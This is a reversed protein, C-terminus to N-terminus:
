CRRPGHSRGHCPSQSNAVIMSQAINAPMIWTDLVYQGNSERLWEKSGNQKDEIYSGEADFVVRHGANCIRMVSALPKTVDAVQFKMAKISGIQTGLIVHREGHNMIPHGSAYIWHSGNKSAEAERLLYAEAMDPASVTEAAGSDITMEVHKWEEDGIGFVDISGM